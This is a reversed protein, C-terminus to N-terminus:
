CLQGPTMSPQRQGSSTVKIAVKVPRGIGAQRITVAVVDTVKRAAILAKDGASPASPTLTIQPVPIAITRSQISSLLMDQKPNSARM